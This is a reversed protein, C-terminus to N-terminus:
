DEAGDRDDDRFVHFSQRINQEVMSELPQVLAQAPDVLRGAERDAFWGSLDVNLTVDITAGEAVEIPSGMQVNVVSTLDTAYTFPVATPNGAQQYAGSVRISVDEFEPHQALFDADENNNTPRHIQLQIRDYSCSDGACAPSKEIERM